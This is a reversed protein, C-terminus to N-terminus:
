PFTILAASRKSRIKQHDKWHDATLEQWSGGSFVEFKTLPHVEWLSARSKGLEEPHDEDWLIWGSVRVQANESALKEFAALQWAPFREKWYPIAEAIIGNSKDLGPSGTIWIHFDDYIGSSGNCAEPGEEKVGAIYGTVSVSKAEGAAAQAAAASTWAYRNESGMALLKDNPLAIIDAVTMDNYAQPAVWRNKKLNLSSDGGIGEPPIGHFDSPVTNVPPETNKKGCSTFAIGLCFYLLFKFTPFKM